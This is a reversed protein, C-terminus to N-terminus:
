WSTHPERLLRFCRTGEKFCVYTYLVRVTGPLSGGRKEESENTSLMDYGDMRAGRAYRAIAIVVWRKLENSYRESPMFLMTRRRERRVCMIQNPEAIKKALAMHDSVGVHPIRGATSEAAFELLWKTGHWTHQWGTSYKLVISSSMPYVKICGHKKM